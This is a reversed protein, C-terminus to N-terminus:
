KIQKRLKWQGNFYKWIHPSRFKDCLRLFYDKTFIPEEFVKSAVPFEKKNISLYKYIEKSFREPFEHDFKNVLLVGEERNIDGSRIEQSADTTARGIGFKIGMTYYFFDDIKDDISNYKSYTGLTREPSAKFDSHEAAYYYNSQPHWKLYYGLYRFDISTKKKLVM